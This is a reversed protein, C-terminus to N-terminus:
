VRSLQTGLPLADLPDSEAKLRRVSKRYDLEAAEVDDALGSVALGRLFTLGTARARNLYWETSSEAPANPTGHGSRVIDAELTAIAAELTTM